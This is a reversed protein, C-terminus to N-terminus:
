RGYWKNLADAKAEAADASWHWSVESYTAFDVPGKELTAGSRRVNLTMSEKKIVRFRRWWLWIRQSEPVPEAFYTIKLPVSSV